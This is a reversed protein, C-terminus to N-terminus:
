WNKGTKPNWAKRGLVKLLAAIRANRVTPVFTPRGALATVLDNDLAILEKMAAQTTM